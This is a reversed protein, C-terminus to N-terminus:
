LILSFTVFYCIVFLMHVSDRRHMHIYSESIDPGAENIRCQKSTSEFVGHHKTRVLNGLLNDTGDVVLIVNTDNIPFVTDEGCQPASNGTEDPSPYSQSLFTSPVNTKHRQGFYKVNKNGVVFKISLFLPTQSIGKRANRNTMKVLSHQRKEGNM